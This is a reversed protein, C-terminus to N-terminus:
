LTESFSDINIKGFKVIRCGHGETVTAACKAVSFNKRTPKEYINKSARTLQCNKINHKRNQLTTSHKHKMLVDYIGRITGLESFSPLGEQLCEKM